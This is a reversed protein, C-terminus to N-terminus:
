IFADYLVSCKVYRFVYIFVIVIWECEMQGGGWTVDAINSYHCNDYMGEEKLQM